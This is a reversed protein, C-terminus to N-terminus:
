LGPHVDPAIVAGSRAQLKTFGAGISDFGCGIEVGTACGDGAWGDAFGDSAFGAGGISFIRSDELAIHRHYVEALRDLIGVLDETLGAPLRNEALWQRCIEEVRHHAVHASVHDAELEDLAAMVADVEGDRVARMRPFLSQEEDHTHRVAAFKFYLLASELAQRHPEDLAGGHAEHVVRILVNLFHEIRRHCDRLLALPDNFDALGQAGLSVPM